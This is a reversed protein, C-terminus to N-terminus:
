VCLSMVETQLWEEGHPTCRRGTSSPGAVGSRQGDGGSGNGNRLMRIARMACALPTIMEVSGRLWVAKSVYSALMGALRVRQAAAAARAADGAPGGDSLLTELHQHTATASAGQGAALPNLLWVGLRTINALLLGAAKPNWPTGTEAMAAASSTTASAIHQMCTGFFTAALTPAFYPEDCKAADDKWCRLVRASLFAAAELGQEPSISGAAAAASLLVAAAEFQLVEFPSALQQLQGAHVAIQVALCKIGDHRRIAALPSPVACAADHCVTMCPCQM